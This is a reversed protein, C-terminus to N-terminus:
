LIHRLLFKQKSIKLLKLSRKENFFLHTKKSVSTKKECDKKKALKIYFGVWIINKSLIEALTGSNREKPFFTKKEFFAMSIKLSAFYWNKEKFADWSTYRNLLEWFTLFNPNRQFFLYTTLTFIKLKKWFRKARGIKKLIRKLHYKQKLLRLVKMKQFKRFYKSINASKLEFFTKFTKLLM